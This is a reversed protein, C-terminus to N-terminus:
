VPRQKLLLIRETGNPLHKLLTPGDVLLSIHDDIGLQPRLSFYGGL